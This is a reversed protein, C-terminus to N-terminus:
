TKEVPTNPRIPALARAPRLMPAPAPMLGSTMGDPVEVELTRRKKDRMIELQLTEGSQYSGLIRLAHRVSTPERGDIKQIVDGDELQLAKSEPANVVLLGQETGFYKGLGANLEVLEM